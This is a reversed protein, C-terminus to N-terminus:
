EEGTVMEDRENLRMYEYLIDYMKRVGKGNGDRIKLIKLWYNRDRYMDGTQIIGYIM